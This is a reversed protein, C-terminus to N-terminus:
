IAGFDHEHSQRISEVGAPCERHPKPGPLQFEEGRLECAILSAVPESAVVAFSKRKKMPKRLGAEVRDCVTDFPEGEPPCVANPTEEWKRFIKPQKKQIEKLSLGQWLGFDVNILNDIVKVPVNLAEGIQIATSKAPESPSTYIVSLDSHQIADIMESVQNRGRNNLPLNLIGQVRDDCDYDTEGPRIVYIPMAPDRPFFIM